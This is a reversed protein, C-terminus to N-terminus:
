ASSVLLFLTRCYYWLWDDFYERKTTCNFRKDTDRLWEVDIRELFLCVFRPGIRAWKGYYHAEWRTRDTKSPGLEAKTANSFDSWGLHLTPSIVEYFHRPGQSNAYHNAPLNSSSCYEGMSVASSSAQKNCYTTRKRKIKRFRNRVRVTEDHLNFTANTRM